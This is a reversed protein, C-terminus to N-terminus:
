HVALRTRRVQYDLVPAGRGDPATWSFRYVPPRVDEDRNFNKPRNPFQEPVYEAPETVTVRVLDYDRCVRAGDDDYGYVLYGFWVSRPYTSYTPVTLTGDAYTLGRGLDVRRFRTVASYGAANCTPSDASIVLPVSTGAEVTIRRVRRGGGNRNTAFIAGAIALAMVLAMLIVIRTKM